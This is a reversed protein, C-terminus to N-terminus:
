PQAFLTGDYYDRWAKVKGNEVEFVGCVPVSMSKGNLMFSDTRENLVVNQSVVQHHIEAHLGADLVGVLHTIHERLASKGVVPELPMNQYVADDSFLNIIGDADGRHWAALFDNVIAGADEDGIM